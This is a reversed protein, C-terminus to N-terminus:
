KVMIVMRNDQGEFFLLSFNGFLRSTIRDAYTNKLETASLNTSIIMAKDRCLRTNIVNYIVSVSYPTNLETGMDDIILLDADFYKATPSDEDEQGQGFKLSSFDSIMTQSSVYVVYYGNEIIKKAIATSLHTKGLGTKGIFLLSEDEKASFSKAYDKCIDLNSQARDRYQPPYYGVNFNEFSQTKALNGLGSLALTETAIAKKLCHCMKGQRYGTDQCDPCKFVPETYNEPLYHKALIEAREKILRHNEEEIVALRKELNEKGKTIEDMIMMGTMALRDDIEKIKPIKIHLDKAKAEALEFASQRNNEYERKLKILVGPFTNM